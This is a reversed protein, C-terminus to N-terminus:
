RPKGAVSVGIIRQEYGTCTLSRLKLCDMSVRAAKTM